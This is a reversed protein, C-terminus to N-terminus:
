SSECHGWFAYFPVQFSFTSTSIKNWLCNMAKWVLSWTMYYIKCEDDDVYHWQALLDDKVVDVVEVCFYLTLEFSSWIIVVVRPFLHRNHHSHQALSSSCLVYQQHHRQDIDLWGIHIYLLTHCLLFLHSKGTVASMTSFSFRLITNMSCM